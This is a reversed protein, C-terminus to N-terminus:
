LKEIKTIRAAGNTVKNVASVIVALKRPYQKPEPNGSIVATAKEIEPVFRNVFWIISNGLLVVLSLILFVTVMGVGLLELAIEMETM